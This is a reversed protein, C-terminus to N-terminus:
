MSVNGGFYIKQKGHMVDRQRGSLMPSQINHNMGYNDTHLHEGAHNYGGPGGHSDFSKNATFNPNLSGIHPRGDSTETRLAQGHYLNAGQMQPSYM